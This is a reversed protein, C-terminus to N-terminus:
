EMVATFDFITKMTVVNLLHLTGEGAMLLKNVYTDPHMFNIYACELTQKICMAKRDITLLASETLAFIIDGSVLCEIVRMNSPLALTAVKHM